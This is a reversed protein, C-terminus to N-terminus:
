PRWAGACQRGPRGSSSRGRLRRCPWGARRLITRGERSQKQFSSNPLTVLDPPAVAPGAKEPDSYVSSFTSARSWNGQRWISTGGLLQRCCLPTRACAAWLAPCELSTSPCPRLHRKCGWGLKARRVPRQGSVGRSHIPVKGRATSPDHGARSVLPPSGPSNPVAGETAKQTQKNEWPPGTQTLGDWSKGKSGHWRASGAWGRAPSYGDSPEEAWNWKRPKDHFLVQPPSSTQPDFTSIAKM